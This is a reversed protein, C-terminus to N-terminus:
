FLLQARVEAVDGVHGFAEFLGAGIAQDQEVPEILRVNDGVAAELCPPNHAMIHSHRREYRMYKPVYRNYDRRVVVTKNM